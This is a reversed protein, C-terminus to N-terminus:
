ASTSAGDDADLETYAKGDTRRPQPAPGCIDPHVDFMTTRMKAVQDATYTAQRTAPTKTTM